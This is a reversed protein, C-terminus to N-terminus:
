IQSMNNAKSAGSFLPPYLFLSSLEAEWTFPSTTAHTMRPSQVWCHPLCPPQPTGLDGSLNALTGKEPGASREVDRGTPCGWHPKFEWPFYCFSRRNIFYFFVPSSKPNRIHIAVGWLEGRRKENVKFFGSTWLRVGISLARLPEELDKPLGDLNRSLALWPSFAGHHQYKGWPIASCM